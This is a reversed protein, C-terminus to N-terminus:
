GTLEPARAPLHNRLLLGEFDVARIAGPRGHISLTAQYAAQPSMGRSELFAQVHEPTAITFHNATNRMKQWLSKNGVREFTVVSRGNFEVKKELLVDDPKNMDAGGHKGLYDYLHPSNTAQM